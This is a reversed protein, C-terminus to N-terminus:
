NHYIPSFCTFINSLSIFTIYCQIDVCYGIFSESLDCWYTDRPDMVMGVDGQPPFRILLDGADTISRALVSAAFCTPRNFSLATLCFGTIVTNSGAVPAMSTFVSLGNLIGKIM